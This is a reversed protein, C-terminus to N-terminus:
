TGKMKFLLTQKLINQTLLMVDKFFIHAKLAYLVNARVNLYTKTALLIMIGPIEILMCKTFYSHMKFIITFTYICVSKLKKSYM